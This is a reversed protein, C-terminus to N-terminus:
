QSIIQAINRTGNREIDLFGQMAMEAFAGKMLAILFGSARGLLHFPEPSSSM